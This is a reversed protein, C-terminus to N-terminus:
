FGHKCPSFQKLTLTEQLMVWTQALQKVCDLYNPQTCTYALWISCTQKTYNLALVRVDHSIILWDTLRWSLYCFSGSGDESKEKQVLVMNRIMPYSCGYLSLILIYWNHASTTTYVLLLADSFNTFSFYKDGNYACVCKYM